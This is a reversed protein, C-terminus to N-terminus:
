KQFPRYEYLSCAPSSCGAIAERDFNQCEGCQAKIAQRPSAKKAWCAAFLKRFSEPTTVLRGARIQAIKESDRHNQSNM